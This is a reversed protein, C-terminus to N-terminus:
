SNTVGVVLYGLLVVVILSLVIGFLLRQVTM